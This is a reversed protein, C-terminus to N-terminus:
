CSWITFTIVNFKISAFIWAVVSISPLFHLDFLDPLTPLFRVSFIDLYPEGTM